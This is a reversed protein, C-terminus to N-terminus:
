KTLFFTIILLLLLMITRFIAAKRTQTKAKKAERRKAPRIGAIHFTTIGALNICIINAIFVLFAQFANGYDGHGLLM